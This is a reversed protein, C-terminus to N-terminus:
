SLYDVIFIELRIIDKADSVFLDGYSAPRSQGRQDVTHQM